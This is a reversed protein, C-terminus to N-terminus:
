LCIEDYIYQGSKKFFFYFYIWKFELWMPPSIHSVINIHNGRATFGKKFIKKPPRSDGRWRVPIFQPDKGNIFTLLWYQLDSQTNESASINQENKNEHSTFM